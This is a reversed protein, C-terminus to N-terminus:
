TSIETTLSELISSTEEFNQNHILEEIYDLRTNIERQYEKKDNLDKLHQKSKSVISDINNKNDKLDNFISIASDFENQDEAKLANQMKTIQEKLSQAEKNKKDKLPGESLNIAKEYQESQILSEVQKLIEESM